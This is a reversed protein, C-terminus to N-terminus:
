STNFRARDGNSWQRNIAALKADMNCGVPRPEGGRQIQKAAKDLNKTPIPTLKTAIGVEIGISSFAFSRVSEPLKRIIPHKKAKAFATTAADALLSNSDGFAEGYGLLDGNRRLVVCAGSINEATVEHIESVMLDNNVLTRVTQLSTEVDNGHAFLVNFCLIIPIHLSFLVTRTFKKPHDSAM